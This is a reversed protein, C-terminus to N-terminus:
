LSRQIAGSSSRGVSFRQACNEKVAKLLQRLHRFWKRFFDFEDGVIVSGVAGVRRSLHENTVALAFDIRIIESKGECRGFFCRNIANFLQLQAELLHKNVNTLIV